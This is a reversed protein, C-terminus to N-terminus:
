QQRYAVHTSCSLLIYSPFLYSLFRNLLEPILMNRSKYMRAIHKEYLLQTPSGASYLGPINEGEGQNASVCLNTRTPGRYTEAQFRIPLLLDTPRRFTKYEFCIPLFTGSPRWNTKGRVIIPQYIIGQLLNM